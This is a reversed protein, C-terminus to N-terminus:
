KWNNCYYTFRFRGMAGIWVNGYNLYWLSLISLGGTCRKGNLGNVWLLTNEIQNYPRDEELYVLAETKRIGVSDERAEPPRSRASSNGTSPEATASGSISCRVRRPRAWRKPRSRTTTPSEASAAISNCKSSRRGVERPQQFEPSQFSLGSNECRFYRRNKM